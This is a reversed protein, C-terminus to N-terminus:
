VVGMAACGIVGFLLIMVVAWVVFYTIAASLEGTHLPFFKADPNTLRDEYVRNVMAPVLFFFPLMFLGAVPVLSLLFVLFIWGALAADGRLLVPIPGFLMTTVSFGRPPTQM